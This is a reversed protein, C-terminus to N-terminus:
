LQDDIPLMRIWGAELRQLPTSLPNVDYPIEKGADETVWYLRGAPDLQVRYANDLRVGEDMYAAVQAALEPSEIFLGAETNIFSSRADLNFSGIFVDKRDFVIAKTHLGARAKRQAFPNFLRVEINPHADFSAVAADRDQLNADDVLVRVRVGREAARALREALIRDTRQATRGCRPFCVSAPGERLIGSWRYRRALLPIPKVIHRACTM